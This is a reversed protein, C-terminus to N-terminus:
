IKKKKTGDINLTNMNFGQDIDEILYNKKPKM